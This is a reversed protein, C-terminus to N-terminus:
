EEIEEYNREFDILIPHHKWVRDEEPPLQMYDGYQVRLAADPDAFCCYHKNEFSITKLNDFLIPPYHTKCARITCPFFWNCDTHSTWRKIYNETSFKWKERLRRPFKLLIHEMFGILGGSGSTFNKSYLLNIACAAFQLKRSVCGPALRDAPFIDIFFGKHFKKDRAWEDQLFTTHNKVIKSFNNTYDPTSYYSQLLFEKPAVSDWLSLLKEYDDRPMMVDIDDDWPIFGGHRVAGILTGYGLSYRLNHKTCIEHFVDLIEQEVRWVSHIINEKGM